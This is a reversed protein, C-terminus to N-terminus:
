WRVQPRSASCGAVSSGRSVGPPRSTALVLTILVVPLAALVLVVGIIVAEGIAALV